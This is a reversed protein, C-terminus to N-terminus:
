EFDSHRLFNLNIPSMICSVLLQSEWLNLSQIVIPHLNSFVQQLYTLGLHLYLHLTVHIYVRKDCVAEHWLPWRSTCRSTAYLLETQMLMVILYISYMNTSIQTM